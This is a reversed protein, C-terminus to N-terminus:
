LRRAFQSTTGREWTGLLLFLARANRRNWWCCGTRSLVDGGSCRRRFMAASVDGGSCRSMKPCFMAPWFMAPRFMAVTFLKYDCIFIAFVGFINNYISFYAYDRDANNLPPFSITQRMIEIQMTLYSQENIIISLPNPVM